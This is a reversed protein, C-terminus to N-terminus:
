LYIGGDIDKYIRIYNNVMNEISYNSRAKEYLRKGFYYSLNDDRLLELMKEALVESDGPKVLYGNVGDQILKNIGGVDTSIVTKEFFASELIVLPFSETYSAVVTFDSIYIYEDPKKFGAFYVRNGIGADEAYKKLASKLEGDGVLIFIVNQFESLVQKCADLFVTHGKVPHFRGIMSVYHEAGMIGNKMIIDNRSFEDIDSEFDMGNYVVHIKEIKFGREVLMDKFNDSVTIYNDFIRLVQRNINSFVSTKFANGLYDKKYDSHITSVYKAEYRIKLFFGLFNARGGHCNVIDIDEDMCLKRLKNVITLDGRFNQKILRIDLGMELAERYLEGEMLCVIVIKIDDNNINSALALLHNKSGGAEGGSIIHLVKM